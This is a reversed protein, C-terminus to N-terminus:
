VFRGFAHAPRETPLPLAPIVVRSFCARRSARTDAQDVRGLHDLPQLPPEDLATNLAEEFARIYAEDTRAPAIIATRVGEVIMADLGASVSRLASQSWSERHVPVLVLTALTATANRSRTATSDLRAGRVVLANGHYRSHQGPWQLAITSRFLENMRDEYAISSSDRSCEGRLWACVVSAEHTTHPHRPNSATAFVVRLGTDTAEGGPFGTSAIMIGAHPEACLEIATRSEREVKTAPGRPSERAPTSRAPEWEDHWYTVVRSAATLARTYRGRLSDDELAVEVHWEEPAVVSMRRPNVREFGASLARAFIEPYMESLPRSRVYAGVPRLRMTFPARADATVSLVSIIAKTVHATDFLMSGDFETADDKRARNEPRQERYHVVAAREEATLSAVTVNPVKARRPHSPQLSAHATRAKHASYRLGLFGGGLILGGAAAAYGASTAWRGPKTGIETESRGRNTRAPDVVRLVGEGGM